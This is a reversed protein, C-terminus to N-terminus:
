RVGVITTGTSRQSYGTTVGAAEPGLVGDYGSRHHCAASSTLDFAPLRHIEEVDMLGTTPLITTSRFATPDLVSATPEVVIVLVCILYFARVSAARLARM